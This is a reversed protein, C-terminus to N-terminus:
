QKKIKSHPVVGEPNQFYYPFYDWVSEGTVVRPDETRALYKDLVDSLRKRESSYEKQDALNLLCAPDNVIDYLEELPRKEM